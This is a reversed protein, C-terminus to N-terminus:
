LRSASIRDSRGCPAWEYVLMKLPQQQDQSYFVPDQRLSEKFTAEPCHNRFQERLFEEQLEPANLCALVLAGPAALEPIRRVVKAYDRSAIFSGRQYSPPDIVIIDFPGRKKIRGWSKLIDLAYFYAPVVDLGNYQHNQRGRELASRNVDVNVVELAGAQLAVVSFVCTFAFLNLVRKGHAQAELWQRAPEIDTFFGINQRDFQIQYRQQKRQAFAPFELEGLIFETQAAALYRRQIAVHVQCEDQIAPNAASTLLAVIEDLFGAPPEQYVTILILPWYGDINCWALESWRGSRGHFIRQAEHYDPQRLFTKLAETAPKWLLELPKNERNM